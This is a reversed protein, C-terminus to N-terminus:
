SPNKVLCWDKAYMDTQSALWGMVITGDAARMITTAVVTASGGNSAAYDRGAQSWFKDAQVEVGTTEGSKAIWMGKGNWGARAVCLGAEMLAIAEGFSMGETKLNARRYTAAFIDPKCPYFEGKIGRIIWDNPDATMVGEPTPILLSEDEAEWGQVEVLDMLEPSADEGYDPVQIAQITVPMKIFDEM